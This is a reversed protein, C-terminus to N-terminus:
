VTLALHTAVIGSGTSNILLKQGKSLRGEEQLKGYSVPLSASALNGLKPYTIICKEKPTRFIKLGIEYPKSGVQHQILHDIDAYDWGFQDLSSKAMGKVLKITEGCIAEMDMGFSPTIGREAAFVDYYCLHAFASSTKTNIGVIKSSGDSPGIIMAGGADGLSFVGLTKAVDQPGLKGNKFQQAIYRAKSSSREGTVVLAYKIQGAAILANATILGTTFGHCADSQDWCCSAQIGLKHAVRHATSPESWDRDIGCFFVADIESTKVDSKAFAKMAADIALDSPYVADSCHRVHSIGLQAQLVSKDAGLRDIGAEELLDSTSVVEPGLCYAADYIAASNM